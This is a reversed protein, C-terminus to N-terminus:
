FLTFSCLASFLLFATVLSPFYRFFCSLCHFLSLVASFLSFLPFSLFICHFSSFILLFVAFLPSLLAFCLLIRAYLPFSQALCRIAILLIVAYTSQSFVHKVFNAAVSNIIGYLTHLTVSFFAFAFLCSRFPFHFVVVVFNNPM